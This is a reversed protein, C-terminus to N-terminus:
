VVQNKSTYIKNKLTRSILHWCLVLRMQIQKQIGYKSKSGTPSAASDHRRYLLLQQELFIVNGNIEAQLGLWMDHMPIKAPIPLTYQLLERRFAICCGLYTNKWINKLIGTGSNRFKFFSPEITQLDQNVIMCDSVVLMNDKLYRLCTSLKGGLWIDDQDCLFIYKGQARLLAKEFNKIVGLSKTNKIYKIRHDSIYENLIEDSSDTSNDDCIILEDNIGLQVVISEIQERIYKEGNYTAMCVSVEPMIRLLNM